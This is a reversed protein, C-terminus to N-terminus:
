RQPRAKALVIRTGRGSQSDIEVRDMLNKMLFIGRGSESFLDPPELGRGEPDFGQGYDQVEVRFESPTMLYQVDVGMESVGHEIANDCVEGVAMIIDYIEEENFAVRRAIAEAQLRVIAAFQAECPIKLRIQSASKVVEEWKELAVVHERMMESQSKRYRSSLGLYFGDFIENVHSELRFVEESTFRDCLRALRNWVERRMFQLGRILDEFEIAMKVRRAAIGEEFTVTEQLVSGGEHSAEGTATSSLSQVLFDTLRRVTAVSEERPM